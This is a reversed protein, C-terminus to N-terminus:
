GVEVVRQRGQELLPEEDMKRSKTLDAVADDPVDAKEDALAPRGSVGIRRRLRDLLDQLQQPPGQRLTRRERLYELPELTHGEVTPQWFRARLALRVEEVCERDHEQRWAVGAVSACSNARSNAAGRKLEQHGIQGENTRGVVPRLHVRLQRVFWVHGVHQAAVPLQRVQQEVRGLRFEDLAAHPKPVGEM